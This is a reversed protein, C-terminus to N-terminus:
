MTELEDNYDTNAGDQDQGPLLLPASQHRDGLIIQCERPNLRKSQVAGNNGLARMGIWLGAVM